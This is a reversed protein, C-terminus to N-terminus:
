VTCDSGDDCDEDVLCEVGECTDTDDNCFQGPCPDTGAQCSCGDCTEAGNCFLGDDCDTDFECECCVDNVEDCIQGPCPDSGAQCDLTSHCTEAGDCFLGNDCYGNNPTNDCSDTGENCSDDTCGVGDNCDPATGSQCDSVDDCWEAGDCWLGNDCNADNAVNDCSDTSENCSDDTCAIGDDCDPATETQCDNVADCWEAGDCWLGNDCNVDNAVNDCSDTGENCSDDTCAVGDDCDVATGDQCSGGVCTEAGNCYLGDDCDGDDYCEPGASVAPVHDMICHIAGAASIISTCDVDVITRNPFATQFVSLATADEPVNFTSVLVVDNMVVANTYTYHVGGSNWGPTRYVTYGKSTLDSVANETITYPDGTSSSYEGVIIESDSVPLMWMDIHGTADFSSPFRDYMTLDLNFHQDIIDAVDQESMGSNEELTLTSMFADTGAVHLNGGGHTLDMLSVTESWLSGVYAPFANDYPRPRNYEFDVIERVDDNVIFRPGYDRIWGTDTTYTIFEVQGMDAGASTLTSTASSQQSSGTVVVYVIADPDGTTVGVTMDTLISNYSGWVVLMGENDDYEAPTYMVPLPVCQDNVEDCSQGPCPDSGAQCFGGVCTEAGNCFLGDDCDSDYDCEYCTDTGEDCLQGPCPDSGSQCEGYADCSEAGNCYLGDSCDGDVLCNCPPCPGGCDIKDEGQNQIGDDCTPEGGGIAWIQVDDINWGSFQWSSDTTGMTWRLYVTPEDDAISSIDYEQLSWSSDEIHSDPNSFITTWSSGNNSVRIYAHDYSNREVNLWRQFKLTVESLGTCDIAGSTLHTETLSNEYDGSLNYGYVNSGTYGSTPDPNGYQGGGGTPQGWEWLGQTTWGPNTDMTWEYQIAPGAVCIDNIEDCAQGPCPDTGAQCQNNADCTEAGDCFLGDDCDSNDYCEICRDNVEDCGLFGVCPDTGAQCEGYDDCVEAGNCYAGDSCDGDLLCSCPPCPGGCDIKDEGQNQIGDDCTPQAGTGYVRVSPDGFVHWCNFETVGSSGYEDMMQCSGAYCLAGFSFYSEDVLRDISEDQACMPPSWSQSISSGYFGIAGTPESGNTAQLWAEAFCDTYNDFEGNNCAVSFIFPLMNDNALNNVDTNNFGTTSWSTPSGHGCYNGIGRGANLANTVDTDTAGVTAYLRDVTTYGYALLDARINDVHEYDYEGDDGTGEASAVGFGKKFWSQQTAPLTEYEITRLVQTDVEAASQASFRGIVIDPYDDSGAVKSYTPDSAGGSASPTAVQAEDGVLLVFALDGTDYENQIYNAISTANNGITGVAVATTSIGMTSNKHDVLPQINSVWSDYYIILMDGTEGLPTYRTKTETEYNLFHGRYIKHFALSVDDPRFPRNKVNVEGARTKVVEVTVGTYVRLTRTVPNYQFPHLKVVVGRYDRLIYPKRLAVVESPYFADTDYEKGFTYPVDAPNVKRSIVGKSPPVDVGPIEYYDSKLVHAVMEADNPIIISRCVHPLEPAGVVEKMVSEQGLLIKKYTKRDIRVLSETFDGLRYDLVIREGTDDAINISVADEAQGPLKAEVELPEVAQARPLASWALVALGVGLLAIRASSYRWKIVQLMTKM